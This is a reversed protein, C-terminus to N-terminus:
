SAAVPLNVTGSDLCFRADAPLEFGIQTGQFPTSAVLWRAEGRGAESVGLYAAPVTGAALVAVRPDSPGTLRLDLVYAGLTVPRALPVWVLAGASGAVWCAGDHAVGAEGAATFAAAVDLTTLPGLAVPRFRGTEDPAVLRDAPGFGLPLDARVVTRSLFTAAGFQPGLVSAPVSTDLAVSGAPRAAWSSRATDLYRRSSRAPAQAAVAVQGALGATMLGAVLFSAVSPRGLAPAADSAHDASAGQGDFAARGAPVARSWAPALLVPVLWLLDAWYRVEVADDWGLLALRSWAVMVGRAVVVVAVAALAPGAQRRLHRRLLAGIGIVAGVGVTTTLVPSGLVEVRGATLGVLSPVFGRVLFVPGFGVLSPLPSRPYQEIPASASARVVLAGVIPVAFWAWGRASGWADRVRRAAGGLGPAAPGPAAVALVLPVLLLVVVGETLALGIALGAVAVPLGLRRGGRALGYGGVVACGAVIAPYLYLGASWWTGLAALSSGSAALAGAALAPGEEAGLARAALAAAVPVAAAFLVLMALAVSWRGGGPGAVFGVLANALPNVHGFVPRGLLGWGWGLRHAQDLNWFDDYYFGCGLGLLLTVLASAGAVVAMGAAWGTGPRRGGLSGREDVVHVRVGRAGSRSAM